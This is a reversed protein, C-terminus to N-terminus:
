SPGVPHPQFWPCDPGAWACALMYGATTADDGLDHEGEALAQAVDELSRTTPFHLTMM